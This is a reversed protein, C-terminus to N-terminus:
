DKNFIDQLEIYDLKTRFSGNDGFTADPDRELIKRKAYESIQEEAPQPPKVSESSETTTRTTSKEILQDTPTAKETKCKNKRRDFAIVVLVIPIAVVFVILLLFFMLIEFICKAVPKLIDYVIILSEFAIEVVAVILGLLQM